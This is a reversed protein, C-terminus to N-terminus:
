RSCVTPSSSPTTPSRGPRGRTGGNSVNFLSFTLNYTGSAPSGNNQLRGQYTFATGQAFAPLCLASVLHCIATLKITQKTKM